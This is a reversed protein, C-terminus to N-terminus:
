KLLSSSNDSNNLGRRASRFISGFNINYSASIMVMNGNNKIYRERNSPNVPSYSKSPYQLGKPQFPCMWSLGISWHKDPRYEFALLSNNEGRSESYGWLYKQPFTQSYQVTFRDNSWWATLYGSLSTLHHSFGDFNFHGYDIGLQGAINFGAFSGLKAYISTNVQDAADANVTHRLFKKDGIYKVSNIMANHINTYSANLSMYLKDATYSANIRYTFYRAEKLDPNGNTVLYPTIQQEYDTLSSLSPISPTFFFSAGLNWKQNMYWTARATSINRIFHRRTADNRIWFMKAGSSLSLYVKSIKWGLRAYAYNNNETLVPKFDSDIYKNTSRSVTNQFGGSLSIADNFKHSYFIESILSRRRSDANTTYIDTKGDPYFYSNDRRYDSNLLTGVLQIELSNRKNFDRHFFLDLSPQFDNSKNRNTFDYNGLQSDSYSGFSRGKSFTPMMTFTVAFLTEPNPAFDYKARVQHFHYNFPNRDHSELDVKFDPAIYAETTHDYVRAYNRWSPYYNLSFQSPGQHYSANINYDMFATTVASRGWFQFSGGDERKRLTVSLLGTVGKDMYREPTVRSYEIKLIDKPQITNLEDMTAPIGNILIMPSGGDVSLSRNLPNALLGPLPLKQILSLSSSSGKKDEASPVVITQGKSHTVSRGKVVVEQLTTVTDAPLSDPATHVAGRAFMPSAASLILLYACPRLLHKM